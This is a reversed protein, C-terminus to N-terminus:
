SSGTSPQLVPQQESPHDVLMIRQLVGADMSVHTLHERTTQLLAQIQELSEAKAGLLSQELQAQAQDLAQLQAEAQCIATIAAFPPTTDSTLSVQQPIGTVGPHPLHHLWGCPVERAREELASLEPPQGQSSAM